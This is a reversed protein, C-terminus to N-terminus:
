VLSRFLEAMDETPDFSSIQSSLFLKVPGSSSSGLWCEPVPSEPVSTQTSSSTVSVTSILSGEGVPGLQESSNPFITGLSGLLGPSLGLLPLILAAAHRSHSSSCDAELFPLMVENNDSLLPEAIEKWLM